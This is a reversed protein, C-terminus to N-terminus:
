TLSALISRFLNDGEHEHKHGGITWYLKSNPLSDHLKYATHPPCVMDYRGQVIHVPMPLKHANKLIHRDPMFCGNAMYHMEIRMGAPDYTEFDSPTFRDNLQIVAAELCEYAYSSLKQEKPTGNVVKDFHYASPNDHHESPTRDLYTQWVDPFFTKFKGADLWNIEKKSGTFIGGIVLAKVREPHALAYALSLASGWSSGHLVFTQLNFMDAVKSIDEILKDTTNNTLSGYPTSRGCGRQDFFIVHQIAPDFPSKHKDKFQSGPGGHLVIVTTAAKANGWEQVYLHHGDGVDLM